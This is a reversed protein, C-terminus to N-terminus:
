ECMSIFFNELAAMPM